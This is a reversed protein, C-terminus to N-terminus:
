PRADVQESTRAAKEGGMTDGDSTAVSYSDVVLYTAHIRAADERVLLAVDNLSGRGASWDASFPARYHVRGLAEDDIGLGRLRSGWERDHSEYDVIMVVHGSTVLEQILLCAVLGKGTGGKGYLVTAGEASLFPAAL